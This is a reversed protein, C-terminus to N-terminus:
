FQLLDFFRYSIDCLQVTSTNKLQWLHPKDSSFMTEAIAQEINEGFIGTDFWWFGTRLEGYEGVISSEGFPAHNTTNSALFPSHFEDRIM